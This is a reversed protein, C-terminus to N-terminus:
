LHLLDHEELEQLVEHILKRESSDSINLLTALQKYNLTKEPFQKFVDWIKKSLKYKLKSTPKKKKAM